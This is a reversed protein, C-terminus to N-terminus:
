KCIAMQGNNVIALAKGIFSKGTLATNKSKSVIDKTSYTWKLNPNFLTLDALSGEELVQSDIGLIAKPTSTLKVVIEDTTLIEQLATNAAAFSTELNIMGFAAIDFECKKNEINQPYHDSCVADLTGDKLGAKLADIDKISRLPPNVKLNSNFSELETDNLLLHYSSTDATVKLGKAKADRILKVSEATTITSFHVRADTYECLQLDRALQLEEALAPIGKLGLRTSSVGENMQGKQSTKEEASFSMILGDFNKAYLMAIKMLSANAISRKDDSFAIAGAQHMDYMETIQEGKRDDTLAGIPHIDVINHLTQNVLYSVDSKRQICPETSPMLAVHTFGGQAAANMGSNLDEKYEHGPEGFRANLDTWGQSIHLNEAEFIEATADEISDSINIILGNEILLDKIQKHHKSSADLITAKKILIKM